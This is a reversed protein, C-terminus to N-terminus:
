NKDFKLTNRELRLFYDDIYNTLLAGYDFVIFQTSSFNSKDYEDLSIVALLYKEKSEIRWYLNKTGIEYEPIRSKSHGLHKDTIDYM